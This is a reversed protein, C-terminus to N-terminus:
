RPGTTLVQHQIRNLIDLYVTKMGAPLPTTEKLPVTPVLRLDLSQGASSPHTGYGVPIHRKCVQNMTRIVQGVTAPRGSAVVQIDAAPPGGLAAQAAALLADAADDVYIYDRLTDLPVFINTPQQTVASLALRSILGQLKDLNQGPGYLNSLRGIVLPCLGTLMDTALTEQALKLRGYPTIAKAPTRADYPPYSSGSYVGGASSTLSVVGAGEPLHFRLASLLSRLAVVEEEAHEACTAPTATGAAWIVAWPRGGTDRQFARADLDFTEAVSTPNGWPIASGYFAESSRRHV